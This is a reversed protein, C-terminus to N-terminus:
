APSTRKKKAPTLQGRKGPLTSTGGNAPASVFISDKLLFRWPLHAAKSIGIRVDEVVEVPGTRPRFGVNADACLDRGHDVGTIGFAQCLKGPGSCLAVRKTQRRRQEMLEVGRTPEVARILVFGDEEGKLLVNLLWYMGYNLYVYATGAGKEAVFRRTSPRFFTHCAEDNLVSYAETEVIVGACENWVLECGILERACTLPDRRFFDADLNTVISM